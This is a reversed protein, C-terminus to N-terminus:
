VLFGCGKPHPLESDKYYIKVNSCDKLFKKAHTIMTKSNDIGIITAHPLKKTLLFEMEGSGCGLDIITCDEKKLKKTYSLVINLFENYRKLNSKNNIHFDTATKGQISEHKKM